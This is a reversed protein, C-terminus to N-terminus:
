FIFILFLYYLSPPFVEHLIGSYSQNLLFEMFVCIRDRFETWPICDLDVDFDFLSVALTDLYKFAYDDAALVAPEALVEDDALHRVADAHFSDEGDVARRDVLDFYRALAADAARLEVIETLEATLRRTDFLASVKFLKVSVGLSLSECLVRPLGRTKTGQKDTLEATLRRTDFLASVELLDANIRVVLKM